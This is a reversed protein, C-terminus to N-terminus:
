ELECKVVQRYGLILGVALFLGMELFIIWGPNPSWPTARALDLPSLEITIYYMQRVVMLLWDLVYFVVYPVLVTLVRLRLKSGVAFCLCAATGGWLFDIGCWLLAYLWPYTFYLESLFSRATILSVSGTVSPLMDPMILANALLDVLVPVSVALGGTVFVAVVKAFFYTRKGARAALQYYVGNKREQAYSWGYPLAALVPWVLFFLNCGYNSCNVGIWHIFLSFGGPSTSYGEPINAVVQNFGYIKYANQGVDLLAIVIGIVMSLLFMWNHSAKWLETRISEKM